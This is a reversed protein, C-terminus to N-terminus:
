LLAPVYRLLVVTCVLVAALWAGVWLMRKIEVGVGRVEPALTLRQGCECQGPDLYRVHLDPCTYSARIVLDQGCSDCRGRARPGSADCRPCHNSLLREYAVVGATLALLGGYIVVGLVVDVISGRGLALVASRWCVVLVLPVTSALVVRRREPQSLTPHAPRGPGDGMM